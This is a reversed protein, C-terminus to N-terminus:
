IWARTSRAHHAQCTSSLDKSRGRKIGLLQVTETISQHEIDRLIVVQRYKPSFSDLAKKLAERLQANTCRNLHFRGGTPLTARFRTEM